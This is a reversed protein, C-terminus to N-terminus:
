VVCLVFQKQQRSTVIIFLRSFIVRCAGATARIYREVFGDDTFDVNHLMLFNNVRAEQLCFSLSSIVGIDEPHRVYRLREDTYSNMLRSTDDTSCNDSVKIEIYKYTQNLASAVCDSFFADARNYTPIGKTVLPDSIM